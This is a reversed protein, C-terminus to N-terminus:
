RRSVRSEHARRWCTRGAGNQGLERNRALAERIAPGDEDITPAADVGTARKGDFTFAPRVSHRAGESREEVPVIM